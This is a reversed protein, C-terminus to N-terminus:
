ISSLSSGSPNIRLKNKQSNMRVYTPKINKYPSSFEISKQKNKLLYPKLMM